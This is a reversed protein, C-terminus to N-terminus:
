MSLKMEPKLEQKQLHQELLIVSKLCHAAINEYREAFDAKETTTLVREFGRLGHHGVGTFDLRAQAEGNEYTRFGCRLRAQVADHNRQSGKAPSRRQM